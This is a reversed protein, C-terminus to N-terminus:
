KAVTLISFSGPVMPGRAIRGNGLTTGPPPAEFAAAILLIRNTKGDLTSTKASPMTNLSQEVVFSTRSNEKVITLTGDSNSSFAEMTAPNFLAGDSAAGIPLTELIKGDDASLIVMTQPNRCTSFLIRNKADVALGACTGGKGQLDYHATVQFTKADVVAISGKDEVDIYVHGNGDSTAQEPAGGLDITGVISGDKADIVTANPASHSLDYVRETSADFFIGDPNGQVEITKIVSLTNTDFMVVPKSTLFGHHTKSDVVVGHGSVNQIEGVPELTDLDFVTIRATPGSRPVYLRRGSVDAYVYDFGGDGGVKATKTIKYPGATSGPQAWGLSVLAAVALAVTFILYSRKM